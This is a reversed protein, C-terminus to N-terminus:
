RKAVPEASDWVQVSVFYVVAALVLLAVSTLLLELSWNWIAFIAVVPAAVAIMAALVAITVSVTNRGIPKM